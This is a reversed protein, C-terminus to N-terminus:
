KTWGQYEAVNDRTVRVFPLLEPQTPRPEGCLIAIGLTVAREAIAFPDEGPSAQILGQPSRMSKVSVPTGEMGVIILDHRKATLAEAECYYAVPDNVGYILNVEPFDRLLKTMFDHVGARSMKTDQDAVVKINPFRALEALFGKVRSQLAEATAPGNAIAVVGQGKLRQAAFEGALKGGQEEDPKVLADTGGPVDADVAVVIVGAARARQVAPSSDGSYCRQIVILDCGNTVFEDIQHMQLAAQNRCSSAIFRVAPNAAKAAQAAGRVIQEYYAGGEEALTVAVSDLSRTAKSASEAFGIGRLCVLMAALARWRAFNALFSRLPAIRSM